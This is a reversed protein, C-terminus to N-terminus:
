CPGPALASTLSDYHYTQSDPASGQLCYSISGTSVATVTVTSSPSYGASQLATMSTTYTGYQMYYTEQAVAANRLDAQVLAATVNERQNLFM